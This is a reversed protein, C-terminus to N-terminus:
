DRRKGYVVSQRDRTAAQADARERGQALDGPVLLHRFRIAHQRFRGRRYGARLQAVLPGDAPVDALPGAAPIIATVEMAPPFAAVGTERFRTFVLKVGNQPPVPTVHDM